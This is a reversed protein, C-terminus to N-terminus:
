RVPAVTRLTVSQRPSMSPLGVNTSTTVGSKPGLLLECLSTGDRALARDSTTVTNTTNRSKKEITKQENM